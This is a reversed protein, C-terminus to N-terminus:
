SHAGHKEYSGVNQLGKRQYGLMVLHTVPHPLPSPNAGRFLDHWFTLDVNSFLTLVVYM